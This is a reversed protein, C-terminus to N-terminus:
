LAYKEAQKTHRFKDWVPGQIIISSLLLDMSNWEDYFAIEEVSFQSSYSLEGELSGFMDM